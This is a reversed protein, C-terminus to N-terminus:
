DVRGLLKSFKLMKQDDQQPDGSHHELSGITGLDEVSLVCRHAIQEYFSLERWVVPYGKWSGNERSGINVNAYFRGDDAIVRSVFKLTDLLIEDRMHILVSFAWVYDFRTSMVLTNPNKAHLLVPEKWELGSEVLEKKGEALLQERAEIGVYHGPDIYGIIAIGGRLTGCGIDLLYHKRRLGVSKLFTIQFARKMEWLHSPGVLGHRRYSRPSIM